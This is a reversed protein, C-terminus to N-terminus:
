LHNPRSADYPGQWAYQLEAGRRGAVANVQRQILVGRHSDVELALLVREIKVPKIPAAYNIWLARRFMVIMNDQDDRHLATSLSAGSLMESCVECRVDTYITCFELAQRAQGM